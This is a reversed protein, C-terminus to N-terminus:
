GFVQSDSESTQVSKLQAYGGTPKLDSDPIQALSLRLIRRPKSSNIGEPTRCSGELSKEKVATDCTHVCVYLRGTKIILIVCLHLM